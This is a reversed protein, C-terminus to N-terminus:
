TSAPAESSVPATTRARHPREKFWIFWLGIVATFLWLLFCTLDVWVFDKMRQIPGDGEADEPIYLKGFIGFVVMWGLALVTDVLYFMWPKMFPAVMCFASYGASIGAIVVVYVWRPDIYFHRQTAKALPTSYVACAALAMSFQALRIFFLFAVFPLGFPLRPDYFRKLMRHPMAWTKSVGM